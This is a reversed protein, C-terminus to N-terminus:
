RIVEIRISLRLLRWARDSTLVPLGRLRALGLAARDALSLGLSRTRAQLRATERAQADDFAVVEVMSSGLSRLSIATVEAPDAGLDVLRSLVEAWNVTSIVAGPVIAAAVRVGGPEARLLALLASADLVVPGAARM